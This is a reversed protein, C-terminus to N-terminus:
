QNGLFKSNTKEMYIVIKLKGNQDLRYVRLHMGIEKSIKIISETKTVDGTLFLWNGM